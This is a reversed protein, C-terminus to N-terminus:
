IPVCSDRTPGLCRTEMARVRGACQRSLTPANAYGARADHPPRGLMSLRSGPVSPRRMPLPGRAPPGVGSATPSPEIAEGPRRGDSAEAWRPSASARAPSAPRGIEHNPRRATQTTSRTTTHARVRNALRPPLSRQPASSDWSASRALSISALRCHSLGVKRPCASESLGGSWCQSMAPAPMSKPGLSVTNRRGAAPNPKSAPAMKAPCRASSRSLPQRPQHERRQHEPPASAQRTSPSPQGPDGARGPQQGGGQIDGQTGLERSSEQLEIVQAPEKDSLILQAPIM